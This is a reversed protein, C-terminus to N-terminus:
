AEADESVQVKIENVEKGVFLGRIDETIMYFAPVILLAIVTVFLVGFGLSIAMPIMFKAQPSTEVMIPMLGFFTTLSTLLIPRLRRMGGAVIAKAAEMGELRYRNIADVLVLSDNVVVGSLAIIGFISIISMSYGTVMHGIVAGVIGFPVASMVILPQIYSRFPIALLTFIVMLALLFNPGLSAFNEKREREQGAQVFNLGVFRKKLQPLVDAELSEIVSRPSKVGAALEANVNVIRQGDERKIETPARGRKFDAVYGLPVFGGAPTGIQLQEVDYESRRQQKPLRIMVKIENRGRQERLIETGFFSARLTRAIDTSTLGLSRAEPRLKFDLQPKGAAYSNEVDALSPYERFKDMLIVSAEALVDNDRHTMQIDVAKGVSPGINSSISLAEIGPIAPLHERWVDAFEAGTFTREDSPILALEMTVLHAGKETQRAGPGFGQRGEGVRTFIGRTISSGGKAEVAEDLATKLTKQVRLTEEIASGYPLRASAIVIDGEVQPFFYFPVIGSIVTSVIIFLFALSTALVLYRWRLLTELMPRYRNETFNQLKQSVWQQVRDVPSFIRALRRWPRGEHGLHAPLIFFSELLSFMLVTIVIIPILRFIKGMVGPVFLMPIFAAITTLISFTVPVMMERAGSIAAELPPVGKATKRYVNEAVVIADDVVMGLTVILAFLTIMNISVDFPEMLLFTGLFSIPIGIAVWVALRRKLFLALIILVLILGTRANRVLLDIRSRLIESFDNWTAITMEDPLESELQKAYRRVADSVETPTEKGVRYATVRVAPKGNFYSAQDSDEYGDVITGIDGLRIQHGQATHRLVISEFDEKRLKRDTVRVLFEGSPTEVGGGPLDISAAKVQAAIQNLTLGYAELNGREVEISIELPRVGELEVQTIEPMALLQSRAREAVEHLTRLDQDGSIILSIVARRNSLLSVIAEEAEDPFSRIRDVENKVDSLVKDAKAGLLLEISVSGMGEASISTVRKVGDIGRVAEEIALVIGQEVESPSAGPYPVMVSILDLDFDPFVEQKVTFVSMIGGLILVAMLLNAAVSHNAMWAIPGRIIQGKNDLM